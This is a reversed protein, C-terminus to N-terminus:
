LPVLELIGAWWAPLRVWCGERLVQGVPFTAAYPSLCDTWGFRRGADIVPDPEPVGELMHHLPSSLPAAGRLLREVFAASSAEEASAARQGAHVACVLHPLIHGDSPSPSFNVLVVFARQCPLVPALDASTVAHTDVFLLGSPPTIIWAVLNQWSGNGDRSPTVAALHRSIFSHPIPVVCPAHSLSLTYTCLCPLIDAQM